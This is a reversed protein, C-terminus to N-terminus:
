EYGTSVEITYRGVGATGGYELTGGCAQGGLSELVRRVAARREEEDPGAGFLLSIRADHSYVTVVHDPLGPLTDLLDAICRLADGASETVAAM